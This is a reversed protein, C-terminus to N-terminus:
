TAGRRSRSRTSTSSRSSCAAKPTTPIRCRCSARAPVPRADRIEDPTMGALEDWTMGAPLKVRVGEQVPKGRSMTVGTAARNALDYREALLDAQRKEVGAERGEHAGHDHRLDGQHRGAHLQHGRPPPAAPTLSPLARSRRPRGDAGDVDMYAQLCNM